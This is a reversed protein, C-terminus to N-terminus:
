LFKCTRSHLKFFRVFNCGPVVDAHLCPFVLAARAHKGVTLLIDKGHWQFPQYFGKMNEIREQISPARSLPESPQFAATVNNLAQTHRREKEEARKRRTNEMWAFASEVVACTLIRLQRLGRSLADFADQRGAATGTLRYAQAGAKAAEQVHALGREWASIYVM